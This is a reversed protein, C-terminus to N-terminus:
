TDPQSYMSRHSDVHLSTNCLSPQETVSDRAGTSTFYKIKAYNQPGNILKTGTMGTLKEAYTNNVLM